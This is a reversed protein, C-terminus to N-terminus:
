SNSKKPEVSIKYAPVDLVNTIADVIESKAVFFDAADVVVLVGRVQPMLTEQVYPSRSGDPNTTTFIENDTTTSSGSSQSQKTERTNTALKANSTTDFTVMVSVQSIGSIQSLMNELKKDFMSEYAAITTNDTTSIQTENSTGSTASGVTNGATTAMTSLAGHPKWVSGLVLCVIGLLALVLLWKNQLLPKWDM